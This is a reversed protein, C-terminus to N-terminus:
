GEDPVEIEEAIGLERLAIRIEEIKAKSLGREPHADITLRRFYIFTAVM